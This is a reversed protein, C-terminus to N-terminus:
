NSRTTSLCFPVRRGCFSFRNSEFPLVLYNHYIVLYIERCSSGLQRVSYLYINMSLYQMIWFLMVWYRCLVFLFIQSINNTKFTNVFNELINNAGKSLSGKESVLNDRFQNRIFAKYCCTKTILNVKNKERM